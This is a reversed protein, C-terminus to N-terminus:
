VAEEEGLFIFTGAHSILFSEKSNHDKPVEPIGIRGKLLPCERCVQCSSKNCIKKFATTSFKDCDTIDWAENLYIVM